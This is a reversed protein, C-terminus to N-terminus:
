FRGGQRYIEHEYMEQQIKKETSEYPHLVVEKCIELATDLEKIGKEFESQNKIKFIMHASILLRQAVNRTPATFYSIYENSFLQLLKVKEIIERKQEISITELKLINDIEEKEITLCNVEKTIKEKSLSNAIKELVEEKRIQNM